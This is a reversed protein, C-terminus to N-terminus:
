TKNDYFSRISQQSFTSLRGSQFPMIKPNKVLDGNKDLFREPRFVEPDEFADPDHHIGYILPVILTGQFAHLM